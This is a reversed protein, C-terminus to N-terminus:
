TLWAASSGGTIALSLPVREFANSIPALAEVYIAFAIYPGPIGTLLIGPGNSIDTFAGGPLQRAWLKVRDDSSCHLRGTFPTDIRINITESTQGEVLNVIPWYYFEVGNEDYIASM